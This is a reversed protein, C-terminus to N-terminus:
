FLKFEEEKYGIGEIFWFKAGSYFEMAPGKVRHYYENGDKRYSFHYKALVYYCNADCTNIFVSYKM